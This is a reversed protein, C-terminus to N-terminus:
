PALRKELIHLSFATLETRQLVKSPTVEIEIVSFEYINM